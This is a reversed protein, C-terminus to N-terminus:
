IQLKKKVWENEVSLQGIQKYLEDILKDKDKEDSSPGTFAGQLHEMAEQKWRNIMNSHVGYLSSLESLTKEEKLAALAVKSKFEKSFTRRKRM